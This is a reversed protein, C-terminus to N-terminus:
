FHLWVFHPTQVSLVYTHYVLSEGASYKKMLYVGMGERCNMKENQMRYMGPFSSMSFRYNNVQYQFFFFACIYAFESFM